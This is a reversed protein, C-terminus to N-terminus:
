IPSCQVDKMSTNYATVSGKYLYYKRCKYIQSVLAIPNTNPWKSKLNQFKPIPVEVVKSSLFRRHSYM